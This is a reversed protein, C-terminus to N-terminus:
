KSFTINILLSSDQCLCCVLRSFTILSWSRPDAFVNVTLVWFMLPKSISLCACFHLTPVTPHPAPAPPLPLLPPPKGSVLKLLAFFYHVRNDM